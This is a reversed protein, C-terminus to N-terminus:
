YYPFIICKKAGETIVFLLFVVLNMLTLRIPLISVNVQPRLQQLWPRMLCVLHTSNRNIIVVGELRDHPEVQYRQAFVASRIAIRDASSVRPFGLRTANSSLGSRGGGWVALFARNSTAKALNSQSSM